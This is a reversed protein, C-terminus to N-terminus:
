DDRSPEVFASVREIILRIKPVDALARPVSIRVTLESTFLDPLVPVLPAAGTLEPLMGDPTYAIGLGAACANRVLHVDSAILIPQVALLRGDRTRWRTADERPAQWALLDHRILEEVNTPTGLQALYSESALLWRRIRLIPFSVWAKGPSADDFHVALDVDDLPESIPDNSFRLHYRLSPHAARVTAFLRVLSQPPMGVPLVVRLTGRPEAGLDRVSALVARMEQMMRRAQSALASGADTLVVGRPTAAILAVGARAELAEVKRRVTSRPMGLADAAASYSKTDAVAVFARLEEIDM